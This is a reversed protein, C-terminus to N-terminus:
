LDYHMNEAVLRKVISIARRFRRKDEKTPQVQSKGRGCGEFGGNFWEIDENQWMISTNLGYIDESGM